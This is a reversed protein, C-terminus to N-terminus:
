WPDGRQDSEPIRLGHNFHAGHLTLSLDDKISNLVHLLTQSDSGGSVAVVLKANVLGFEEFSSRVRSHINKVLLSNEKEEINM